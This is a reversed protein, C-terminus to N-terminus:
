SLFGRLSQLDINGGSLIVGVRKGACAYVGELVSAAALCGTPEVVIKMRELFFRMAAVLMPDPVTVIDGVLNRIVAFTHAGLSTTMAGDAITQPVPIRVVEGKRFSQQGDNGAEPEVGIVECDPSLSKAALACGALLGGGGLPAVLVDLSGVEEILELAATGQGAIVDPHDFPPILALGGQAALERGMAERDEKFRDYFVIEAGYGRTAAVKMAPADTPMIVTVKVGQLQGALAMAQAHNGSSFTIVGRRRQEDGLSAIANYAGRFKFAGVRQLNECKFFLRAGTRADATRSTLVPTRHAVGRIRQAAARVDDFTPVRVGDGADKLQSASATM